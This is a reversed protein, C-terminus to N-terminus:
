RRSSESFRAPSGYLSHQRIYELVRPPVPIEERGEEIWMRIQSSSIPLELGTMERVKAGEPKRYEAEPRPVVIFEVLPAVDRWRHWTEVEAFADAGIIFCLPGLGAAKLKEITLISYSRETGEEVTSVEFRIDAECALRCMRVRDEFSARAAHKHPPNYAPVFLVRKLGFRDAAARAVEVHANHM